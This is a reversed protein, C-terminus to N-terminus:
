QSTISPTNTLAPADMLCGAIGGCGFFILYPRAINFFRRSKHKQRPALITGATPGHPRYSSIRMLADKFPQKVGIQLHTFFRKSASCVAIFIDIMGLQSNKKMKFKINRLTPYWLGDYVLCQTSRLKLVYFIYSSSGATQTILAPIPTEYITRTTSKINRFSRM